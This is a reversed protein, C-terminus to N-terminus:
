VLSIQSIVQLYEWWWESEGHLSSCCDACDSDEERDYNRAKYTRLPHEHHVLLLKGIISLFLTNKSFETENGPVFTLNRLITSLSICRRAIADQSETVLYLSSEDRAYSEDEYDSMRRRKLVGSPDNIREKDEDEESKTSISSDKTNCNSTEELIVDKKSSCSLIKNSTRTIEDTKSSDSNNSPESHESIEQKISVSVEEKISIETDSKIRERKERERKDKKVDQLIRVFPVLDFEGRFCPIIYKSELDLDEESEELDWNRRGDLVFIEDDANVTTVVSGKRSKTTYDASGNLITVRDVPDPHPWVRGLDPEVSKFKAREYWQRNNSVNNELMESLAYRFHELLIDLLGPLHALGFYQVGVDDYLLINLVDLAWTTEALLGSRLGMMIRWADVPAVDGKTLRRRKYAVPTVAEVSDPPFVLERKLAPQPGTQGPQFVSFHLYKSSTNANLYITEFLANM